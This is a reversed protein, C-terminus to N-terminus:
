GRSRQIQMGAIKKVYDLILLRFRVRWNYIINQQNPTNKLLNKTYSQLDQLAPLLNANTYYPNDSLLDPLYIPIEEAKLTDDFGVYQDNLDGWAYNLTGNENYEFSLIRENNENYLYKETEEYIPENTNLDYFQSCIENNNSDYLERGNNYLNGKNYYRIKIITYNTSVTEIERLELYLDSFESLIDADLEGNDKHYIVGVLKKDEYEESKKVVGNLSFIKYYSDIYEIQQVSILEDLKNTYSIEM